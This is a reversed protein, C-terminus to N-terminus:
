STRSAYQERMFHLLKPLQDVNGGHIVLAIGGAAQLEKLRKVQLPRPKEKASKKAEIGIMYGYVCCVFDPHGSAGFGFTVPMVWYANHKALTEAIRQKVEKETAPETM